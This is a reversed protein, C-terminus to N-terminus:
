GFVRSRNLINKPDLAKKLTKMLAIEEDNRSYSLYPKKLLGIGHEGSVSGQFEGTIRLITEILAPKDQEKGTTACIHLNGDGIHGFAIFTLNTFSTNLATKVHHLYRDMVSLPVSVDLNAAPSLLPLLEAIGDRIKWFASAENLSKAVLADHVFDNKLATHLVSEFQDVAAQNNSSEYEILAYIPYSNSFPTTVDKVTDIVMSLYDDWMVEFASLGGSFQENMLKLLKVVSSFDPLACLATHKAANEPFLRMVVRTVLGLTGESGIFLQKLDFGANNKLMKNMSSIITGDALVTELGLVLARTMGYRIVQTGGANTSVNGGITCSGRSGLDLPLKLGANKAAQQMVELPTGALATITMSEADIEEIGTLRELSLVFENAQPNGGASLGTMGGQVVIPQGAENCCSLCFAVEETDKPRLVLQPKVGVDGSWDKLYKDDIDTGSLVAQSGLKELLQHHLTSM